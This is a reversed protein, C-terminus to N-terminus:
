LRASGAPSAVDPLWLIPPSGAAGLAEPATALVRLSREIAAAPLRFAWRAPCPEQEGTQGSPTHSGWSRVIAQPQPAQRAAALPDPPDRAM